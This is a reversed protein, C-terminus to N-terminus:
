ARQMWMDILHRAISDTRPLQYEYDTDGWTGFSKLDDRTFWQADELENPDLVINTNTAIAEFGLMISRPFPWPQSAVYRVDTTVIGSEELVERQVAQELTEGTEVFGALTSFVGPPWVSNRGLLCLEPSSSTAPSTVLMIVAPDTRPFTQYKCEDSVCQKTHGGHISILAQGCRSCFRCHDQWYMVGRAFAMLAADNAPLTSGVARLDAFQTNTLKPCLQAAKTQFELLENDSLASISIAFIPQNDQLGLFVLEFKDNLLEPLTSPLKALAPQADEDNGIMLKGHHIPLVSADDSRFLRKLHQVDKRLHDARDLTSHSYLMIGM